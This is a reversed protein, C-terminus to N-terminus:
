ERAKFLLAERDLASRCDRLLLAEGALSVHNGLLPAKGSVGRAVSANRGKDGNGEQLHFRGQENKRERQWHFHGGLGVGPIPLRQLGLAHSRLQVRGQLPQLPRTHLEEVEMSRVMPCRHLLRQTGAILQVFFYLPFDM